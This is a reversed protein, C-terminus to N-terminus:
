STFLNNLKKLFLITKHLANHQICKFQIYSISEKGIHENFINVFHQMWEDWSKKKGLAEFDGELGPVEGSDAIGVIISGGESNM